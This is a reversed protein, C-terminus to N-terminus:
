YILDYEYLKGKARPLDTGLILDKVNACESM